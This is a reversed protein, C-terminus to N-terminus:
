RNKPLGHCNYLNSNSNNNIDRKDRNSENTDNRKRKIYEEYHKKRINIATKGAFGVVSSIALIALEEM